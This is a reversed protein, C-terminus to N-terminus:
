RRPRPEDAPEGPRTVNRERRSLGDGGLPSGRPGAAEGSPRVGGGTAPADPTLLRERDIIELRNRDTRVRTQISLNRASQHWVTLTGDRHFEIRPDNVRVVNGIQILGVVRQPPTETVRLFLVEVENRPWYLLTYTRFITDYDPLPRTLSGIEIGKVVDFMIPRTGLQEGGRQVVVSAHYRGQRLGRFIQGLNATLTETEGPMVMVAGFHQERLAPLFGHETSRLYVTLHNNRYEGYDDVIFPSAGDNTLQLSLTVPEHEVYTGHALRSEVRLSRALAPTAAILLAGLGVLLRSIQFPQSM